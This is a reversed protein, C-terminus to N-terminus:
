PRGRGIPLWGGTCPASRTLPALVAVLQSMHVPIACPSHIWAIRHRRPGRWRARPTGGLTSGGAGRIRCRTPLLRTRVRVTLCINGAVGGGGGMSVIRTGITRVSGGGGSFVDVAVVVIPVVVVLLFSGLLVRCRRQLLVLLRRHPLVLWRRRQLIQWRRYPLVPWRWRRRGLLKLMRGAM